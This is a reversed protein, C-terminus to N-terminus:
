LRCIQGNLGTASAQWSIGGSFLVPASFSIVQTTNPAISASSLFRIPTAQRDQVTVTIATATTNTFWMLTVFTSVSVVDTMVTPLTTATECRALNTTVVSFTGASNPQVTPIRVLNNTDRGSILIPNTSPAQNEAQAGQVFVTGSSVPGCSGANTQVVYVNATGGAPSSGTIEVAVRAAASTQVFATTTSNGSVPSYTGQVTDPRFFQSYGTFQPVASDGTQYVNLTFSHSASDNNTVFVCIGQNPNLPVFTWINEIGNAGAAGWALNRGLTLYPGSSRVQIDARAFAALM